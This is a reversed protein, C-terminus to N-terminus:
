AEVGRAIDVTHGDLELVPESLSLEVRVWGHSERFSISAGRPPLLSRVIDLGTGTAVSREFDFGHPLAGRNEIAVTASTTSCTLRVIIKEEDLSAQAHKIANVMLENLILAIAVAEDEAVHGRVDYAQVDIRSTGNGYTEAVKAISVVMGYIEPVLAGGNGQLGHVVAVANLQTVAQEIITALRPDRMAHTGLLGAVGQLHNKIRHHVERILADRHRREKAIREDAITRSVTIDQSVGVMIKRDSDTSVAFARDRIWRLDGNRRAIRYEIDAANGLGLTHQYQEFRVRDEPVVLQMRVAPDRQFAEVSIGWVESFAPSVYECRNTDVDHIWFVEQINEALLRLRQASEAIKQQALRQETIDQILAVAYQTHGDTLRILGVSVQGWIVRKDKRVYRKELTYRRIKGAYLERLYRTNIAIEHEDAFSIAFFTKQLLEDASYGMMDCYAANVSVFRGDPGSMACAVPSEDFFGRFVQEREALSALAERLEATRTEVQRELGQSLQKLAQEAKVRESVDRLIATYVNRGRIEVKSISAELPFEEGSARLGHVRGPRGMPGGATRAVGFAHIKPGHVERMGAPLLRSLTTGVMADARYGFMREAAPNFVCIHLADDVAIIADMASNVLGALRRENDALLNYAEDRDRRTREERLAIEIHRAVEEVTRAEEATWERTSPAAVCVLGTLDLSHRIPMELLAAAGSELAMVGLRGLEPARNLDSIKIPNGARLLALYEPADALTVRAGAVDPMQPPNVACRAMFMADKDVTGYVARSDPFLRHLGALAREILSRAPTASQSDRMISNLVELRATSRALDLEARKQEQIAHELMRIRASEGDDSGTRQLTGALRPVWGDQDREVARGRALLWVWGDGIARMRFKIEIRPARAKLHSILADRLWPRDEPHVMAVWDQMTVRLRTRGDGLSEFLTGSLDLRRTAADWDWFGLEGAQLVLRFREDERVFAEHRTQWSHERYLSRRLLVTLLATFVMGLFVAAMTTLLEKGDSAERGVIANPLHAVVVSFVGGAVLVGLTLM